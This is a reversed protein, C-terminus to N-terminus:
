LDCPPRCLKSVRQLVAESKSGALLHEFQVNMQRASRCGKLPM